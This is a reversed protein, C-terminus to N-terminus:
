HALSRTFDNWGPGMVAQGRMTGCLKMRLRNKVRTAFSLSSRGQGHYDDRFGDVM